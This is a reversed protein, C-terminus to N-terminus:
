DALLSKRDWTRRIKMLDNEVTRKWAKNGAGYFLIVADCRALIDQNAQRM